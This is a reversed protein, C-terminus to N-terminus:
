GAPGPRGLVAWVTKGVGCDRPECGWEDALADLVALGRGSEEAEGAERRRPLHHLDADSVEIRLFEPRIEFRTCIERGPSVRAHQVANTVLESLVLQGSDLYEPADWVALFYRLMRRASRVSAPHRTFWWEAEGKPTITVQPESM